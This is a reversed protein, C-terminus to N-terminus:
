PGAPLAVCFTCCPTEPRSAPPLSPSLVRELTQNSALYNPLTWVLSGLTSSLLHAFLPAPSGEAPLCTATLLLFRITPIVSVLSAYFTSSSHYPSLSITTSDAICMLCSHSKGNGYIEWRSHRLNRNVFLSIVKKRNGTGTWFLPFDKKQYNGNKVRIAPVCNIQNKGNGGRFPSTLGM